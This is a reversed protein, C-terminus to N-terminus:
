KYGGLIQVQVIKPLKAFLTALNRKTAAKKTNQHYTVVEHLCEPCTVVDCTKITIKGFAFVLKELRHLTILSNCKSCANVGHQIPARNFWFDNYLHGLILDFGGIPKSPMITNEKAMHSQLFRAM